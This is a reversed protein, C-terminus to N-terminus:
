MEIFLRTEKDVVDLENYENSENENEIAEEDEEEIGLGENKSANSVTDDAVRTWCIM